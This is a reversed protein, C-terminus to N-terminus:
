PNVALAGRARRSGPIPAVSPSVCMPRVPQRRPCGQGPTLGPDACSVAVWMPRVPQRRPCGQGPTLGPDPAVSPRGWTPRVPQRRPGGQGGLHAGTPHLQRRHPDPQGPRSMRSSLSCPFVAYLLKGMLVSHTKVKPSTANAAVCPQLRFSGSGMGPGFAAETATPWARAGPIAQNWPPRSSAKVLVTLIQEVSRRGTAGTAGSRDRMRLRTFEGGGAGAQPASGHGAM